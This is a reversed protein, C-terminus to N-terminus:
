EKAVPIEVDLFEKVNLIYGVDGENSGYCVV